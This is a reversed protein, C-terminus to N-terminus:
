DIVQASWLTFYGCYADDDTDDGFPSVPHALDQGAHVAILVFDPLGRGLTDFIEVEAIPVDHPTPPTTGVSVVLPRRSDRGPDLLQLLHRGRSSLPRGVSTLPLRHPRDTLDVQGVLVM